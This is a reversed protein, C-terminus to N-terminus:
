ENKKGRAKVMAENHDMWMLNDVTVNGRDGDKFVVDRRDENNELFTMAVLRHLLWREAEGDKFLGIRRYGRHDCYAKLIRGKATRMYAKNNKSRCERVADVSRIRGLTSAQYRGEFGPIDKWIENMM